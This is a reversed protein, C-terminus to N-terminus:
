KEFDHNGDNMFEIREKIRNKLFGLGSFGQFLVEMEEDLGDLVAKRGSSLLGLKEVAERFCISSRAAQKALVDYDNVKGYVGFLKEDEAFKDFIKKLEEEMTRFISESVSDLEGMVELAVRLVIIDKITYAVNTVIHKKIMWENEKFELRRMEEMEKEVDVEYWWSLDPCYEEENLIEDENWFDVAMTNTEEKIKQNNESIKNKQM